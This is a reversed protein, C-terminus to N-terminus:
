AEHTKVETIIFTKKRREMIYAIVFGTLKLKTQM